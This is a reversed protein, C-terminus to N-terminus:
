RGRAKIAARRWREEAAAGEEGGGDSNNRGVRRSRPEAGDRRPRRVETAAATATTLAGAGQDGSPAMEGRSGCRHRQRRQTERAGFAKIAARRWREEARAGRDGGGDRKNRGRAKIATSYFTLTCRASAVAVFVVVVVVFLLLLCCVNVVACLLLCLLCRDCCVAFM